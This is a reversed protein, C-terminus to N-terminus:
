EMQEKVEAAFDTSKKEIGEGLEFRVYEKVESNDALIEKVKKKDDKIFPQEILCVEGYFKNIKGKLINEIINEPKGENKLQETYVEKEKDIVEAPIKSSDLYKPNAAAAHMAIDRAMDQDTSNTIVVLTGIKGGMHIYAGFAENDIKELVVVRRLSVKEGIKATVETLYEEVKKGEMEQKLIDEVNSLKQALVFDTMKAVVEKFDENKAVFDTESNIELVVATNGDVKVNVTGEAAIKGARKGAKVIGKKRLIEAAKEINGEAEDLATKCDMMGAGTMQRLNSVDSASISM